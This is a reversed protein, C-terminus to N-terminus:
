RRPACTLSRSGRLYRCTPTGITVVPAVDGYAAVPRTVYIGSAYDQNQSGHTQNPWWAHDTPQPGAYAFSSVALLPLAVSTAFASNRFM